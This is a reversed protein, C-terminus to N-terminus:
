PVGLKVYSSTLFYALRKYHNLKDYRQATSLKSKEDEDKGDKSYQRSKHTDSIDSSGKGEQLGKAYTM